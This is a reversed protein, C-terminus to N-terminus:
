AGVAHHGECGEPHRGPAPAPVVEAAIEDQTASNRPGRFVAPRTLGTM